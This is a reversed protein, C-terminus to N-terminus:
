HNLSFSQTMANMIDLANKLDVAHQADYQSILSPDSVYLGAGNAGHDFFDIQYCVGNAETDYAIENYLNGAAAGHSESRTFLYGNLMFTSTGSNSENVTLAPCSSSATVTVKADDQLPWHFYSGKPFSFLVMTDAGNMIMNGPYKISYGLEASSYTKWSSTDATSTAFAWGISTSSATMDPTSSSTQGPFTDPPITNQKKSFTYGFYVATAIIALLILVGVLKLFSKM